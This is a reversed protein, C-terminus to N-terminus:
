PLVAPYQLLSVVPASYSPVRTMNVMVSCRYQSLVDQKYIFYIEIFICFIYYYTSMHGFCELNTMKCLFPVQLAKSTIVTISYAISVNMSM